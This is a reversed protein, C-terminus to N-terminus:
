SAMTYPLQLMNDPSVDSCKWLRRVGRDHFCPLSPFRSLYSTGGTHYSEGTLFARALPLQDLLWHCQWIGYTPCDPSSLRYVLSHLAMTEEGSTQLVQHNRFAEYSKSYFDFSGLFYIRLCVVM